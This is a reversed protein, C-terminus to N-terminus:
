IKKPNLACYLNKVAQSPSSGTEHVHVINTNKDQFSGIAVWHTLRNCVMSLDKSCAEILEELTPSYTIEGVSMSIEEEDGTFISEHPGGGGANLGEWYTGGVPIEQPFGHEKLEVCDQYTLNNM